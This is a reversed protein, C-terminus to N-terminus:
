TLIIFRIQHSIQVSCVLKGGIREREKRRRGFWRSKGKKEEAAKAFMERQLDQFEDAAQLLEQKLEFRMITEFFPDTESSPLSFHRIHLNSRVQNRTFATFGNCRTFVTVATVFVAGPWFARYHGKSAPQNSFM